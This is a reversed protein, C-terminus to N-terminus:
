GEGRAATVAESVRHWIAWPLAALEAAYAAVLEEDTAHKRRAEERTRKEATSQALIEAELKLLSQAAVYSGDREASKRLRHTDRLRLALAELPDEPEAETDPEEPRPPPIDLGQLTALSRLAAVAAGHRGATVASDAVTDLRSAMLARRDELDEGLQLRMAALVTRRDRRITEVTVHLETALADEVHRSWPKTSALVAEVRALRAPAATAEETEGAKQRPM